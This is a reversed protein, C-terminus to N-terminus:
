NQSHSYLMRGFHTLNVRVYGGDTRNRFIDIGNRDWWELPQLVSGNWAHVTVLGLAVQRRLAQQEARSPYFIHREEIM